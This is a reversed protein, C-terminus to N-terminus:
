HQLTEIIPTGVTRAFNIHERMAAALYEAMSLEFARTQPPVGKALLTNCAELMFQVLPLFSTSLRSKIYMQRFKQNAMGCCLEAESTSMKTQRAFCAAVFRRQGMCLALIVLSASLQGERNLQEIMHNMAAEPTQPVLVKLKMRLHYYNPATTPTDIDVGTYDSPTYANAVEDNAARQVVDHRYWMVQLKEHDKRLALHTWVDEHNGLLQGIRDLHKEELQANENKALSAVVEPKKKEILENCLLGSVSERESIAMLRSTKETQRIIPVLEEDSLLPSFKLIPLAVMDSEDTALLMVVAKPLRKSQKIGRALTERVEVKPDRQLYRAIDVVLQHAESGEPSEELHVNIKSAVTVRASPSPNMQLQRFDDYSLMNM